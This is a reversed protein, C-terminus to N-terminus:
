GFIRNIVRKSAEGDELKCFLNYYKDYNSSLTPNKLISKLKSILEEKTEVLYGPAEEQFNLYFGRVYRKDISWM